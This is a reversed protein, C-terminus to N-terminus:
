NGERAPKIALDSLTHRGFRNEVFGPLDSSVLSWRIPATLPIVLVERDILQAALSLFQARQQPSQTERAADAIADVEAACLAVVGCHLRRVFWAPSTSPAVEDILTLDVPSGRPAAELGIGLPALDAALRSFGSVDAFLVAAQLSESGTAAADGLALRRLVAGPVFTALQEAYGPM